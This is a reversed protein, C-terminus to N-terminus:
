HACDLNATNQMDNHDRQLPSREKYLIGNNQASSSSYVM